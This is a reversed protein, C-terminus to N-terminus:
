GDAIACSGPDVCIVITQRRDGLRIARLQGDGTRAIKDRGICSRRVIAAVSGVRGQRTAAYWAGDCERVRAPSQTAKCIVENGV